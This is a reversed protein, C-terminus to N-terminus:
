ATTGYPWLINLILIFVFIGILKLFTKRGKTMSEFPGTHDILWIVAFIILGTAIMHPIDFIM